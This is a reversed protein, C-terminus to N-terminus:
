AFVELCANFLLARSCRKFMEVLQDSVVSRM